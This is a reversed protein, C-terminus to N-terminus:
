QTVTFFLVPSMLVICADPTCYLKRITVVGSDTTPTPTPTPQPTVTPTPTVTPIPTPTQVPLVCMGNICTGGQAICLLQNCVPMPTQTPAVTPTPTPQPTQPTPSPFAGPVCVGDVCKGQQTIACVLPNCTEAGRALTYFALALVFVFLVILLRM